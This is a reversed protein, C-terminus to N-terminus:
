LNDEVECIDQLANGLNPKVPCIAYRLSVGGRSLNNARINKPANGFRRGQARGARALGVFAISDNQEVGDGSVGIGGILEPAGNGTLRYIPFGGPFFTTGNPITALDDQPVTSPDDFSCTRAAPPPPAPCTSPDAPNFGPALVGTNDLIQRLDQVNPCLAVALQALSADLQLGTNFISWESIPNSLPGNPQGNENQGDPFFPRAIAGAATTSYAIGDGLATAAPELYDITTGAYTNLPTVGLQGSNALPDDANALDAPTGRDSLFVVTQAKQVVVNCGDVLADPSRAFGLVKGAADTVAVDIRAHQGIPLRAQGRTQEAVLLTQELIASVDAATLGGAAPLPATPPAPAPFRANGNEDTLIEAAAAGINTLQYGTRFSPAGNGAPEILPAGALIEYPENAILPVPDPNPTIRKPDTDLFNGYWGPVAVTSGDAASRNSLPPATSPDSQFNEDQTFRLARGDITIRNARREEPAAFGFAAAMAIREELDPTPPSDFNEVLSYVGDYEASVAGVPIGNKYLSVGGPDAAFGLPLRKPGLYFNTPLVLPQPTDAPDVFRQSFLSCPLQSFQVSFLPGAARFKEQPNFNEQIVQSVTRSTFANGQTTFFSSVGAKSIAALTAPVRIGNLGFGNLQARSRASNGATITSTNAVPNPFLPNADPQMQWVALVNNVRDVVAFTANTVGNAKAEEIGQSIIRRVEPATLALTNSCDGTCDTQTSGPAPPLPQGCNGGLQFSSFIAILM